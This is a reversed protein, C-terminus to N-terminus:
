NSFIMITLAIEHIKNKHGALSEDKFFNYHMCNFGLGVAAGLDGFSLKASYYSTLGKNLVDNYNADLSGKYGVPINYRLGCDIIFRTNNEISGFTLLFGGGFQARSAKQNVLGSYDETKLQRFNYHASAYLAYNINRRFDSIYGIKGGASLNGWLNHATPKLAEPCKEEGNDDIEADFSNYLKLTADSSVIGWNWNPEALPSKTVTNIIATGMVAMMYTYMNDTGVDIRKFFHRQAFVTNAFIINLLIVIGLSKLVMKKM